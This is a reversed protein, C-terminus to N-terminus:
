KGGRAEEPYLFYKERMKELGTRIDSLVISESTLKVLDYTTDKPRRALVGKGISFYESKVPKLLNKELNFVECVKLGFEYLTASEPSAVNYIEKNIEKEILQLITQACDPAYTPMWIVDNVLHFSKLGSGLGKVITEAWNTRGGLYSWGYLMFPRFILWKDAMSRVLNEAERKIVGYSNVPELPSKENYPPLKGSYVANTSIYVLKSRYGNSADIIHNLGGVNVDRVEQYHDETYDVGGISACHIVVNPKVLDFIEFVSSRDKIDLHYWIAQPGNVQWNKNYTLTHTHRESATELLSKGLLGSAGTILIKKM